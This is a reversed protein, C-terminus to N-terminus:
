PGSKYEEIKTLCEKTLKSLQENMQSSLTGSISSLADGHM